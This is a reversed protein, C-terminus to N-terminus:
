KITKHDPVNIKVCCFLWELCFTWLPKKSLNLTSLNLSASKESGKLVYKEKLMILFQECGTSM